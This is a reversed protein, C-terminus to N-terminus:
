LDESEAITASDDILEPLQWVYPSHSGKGERRATVGLPGRAREVTRWSHGEEAARKQLDVVRVPGGLLVNELWQQANAKKHDRKNSPDDDDEALIEKARGHLADGWEVKSANIGPHDKLDVQNFSYGFGGEDPGINSKARVLVRKHEENQKIMATGWVLRAVAGFAVSGTVRELPERGGTGKSFHTVGLLAADISEAFNVLPALGRRVEANKHSDGTVASVIPDVILLKVNGIKAARAMLAPMDVAPDFPRSDLGDSSTSIFAVRSPDAGAAILRPALTDKADDEGSWILVTGQESDSGDPWKGGRSVIAACSLAITTKGTGPAGAILALKGLALWGNWLWRIPELKINNAYVLTVGDEDTTSAPLVGGTKRPDVWGSDAALKYLSGLTTPVKPKDISLDRVDRNFARNSYKDCEIGHFEGKAWPRALTEIADEWGTAHCARLATMYTARSGNPDLKRLASKVRKRELPTDPVRLADRALVDVDSDVQATNASAETLKPWELAAAIGDFEALLAQIGDDDVVSLGDVAVTLPSVGDIWHYPRDTDPHIGYAVFQQGLGLVEIQQKAWFDVDCSDKYAASSVKGAPTLRRYVLLRKPAQGIRIPANGLHELCWRELTDAIVPDRVDIDIACVEGTVIGIGARRHKGNVWELVQEIDAKTSQWHDIAPAKSASRIPIVSYGAKVLQTGHRALYDIRESM